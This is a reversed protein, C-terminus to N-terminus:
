KMERLLLLPIERNTSKLYNNYQPANAVVQQWARNREEGVLIEATGSLVKNRIQFIVKKDKQINLFWDPNNKRGSNSAVIIYGDKRDFYGLSSTHSKGSKRGTTTLLLVKFGIMNGGIIGGTLKYLLIQLGM